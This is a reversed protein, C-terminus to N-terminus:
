KGSVMITRREGFYARGGSTMEFSVAQAGQGVAEILTFQPVQADKLYPTDAAIPAAFELGFEKRGALYVRGAQATATPALWAAEGLNGVNARCLVKAGAPAAYTQGEVATQWAGDGIKIELSNFEADLYLPPNHGNYEGGGVAALSCTESNTGTGATRVEVVKGAKVLDLYQQSYLPWSDPYKTELDFNITDTAAPHKVQAFRPLAQRMVDCAPRETGDPEVVGFDSNEGLRFGGPFWWPSAGRAGSEVFMDYYDRLEAAQLQLQEPKISVLEPSWDTRFGNVTYGFEMWVIPKERSTFRYYLTVLGGRRLDDSPTKVGFGKTQLNYGEPNLFDMHKPAAVGHIHAFEAGYPIGCAGGRFSILHSPNWQRLPEAIDRYGACIIDSHARRFAAVYRDWEGHKQCQPGEPMPVKGEATLKPTFKWDAFANQLSGYREVIWRNWPDLIYDLRGQWNSEIPEWALEWCMVAPHNKIGARTIYDRLKEFSGGYYPRGEQLFFFVKMGHRDCRDLFDLQDRFANPDGPNPPVLAQIGSLANVGLSQLYTLDREIVEPDYANRQSQGLNPYGGIRNPWYNIGKFNWPKGALTFNSGEVRVFEDPTAPKTRTEDVHHAIHDLTTGQETLTTEVQYGGPKGFTATWTWTKEAMEGPALAVDATFARNTDGKVTVNLAVTHKQRGLNVASAGITAAEGPKYSFLETGGELLFVGRTMARVCDLLVPQIKADLAQEPDGFAFNAWLANPHVGDGLLLSVMAGRDKGSGDVADLVPVWRWPRRRNVGRGRERWVPAYGPQTWPLKTAATVGQETAAQLTAAENVPYLKYSPCLAELEPVRFNPQALDHGDAVSLKRIWYTHAGQGVRQTHSGALGVTIAAVQLPRLHDGEGGRGKSTSDQWYQFDGPQLLYTQWDTTMDIVAIWRSGDKETCEISLQSTTADGKAELALLQHQEDFPSQAFGARWTDWGRLESQVQWATPGSAPDPTISAPLEAVQTSRRWQEPKIEIPTQPLKGAYSQLWQPQPLWGEPSKALLKSLAPAGLCIVKGGCQSAAVLQDRAAVPLTRADALVLVDLQDWPLPKDLEEWPIITVGYGAATLVSALRPAIKGAQDPVVAITGQPGSQLKIANAVPALSSDVRFHEFAGNMGGNTLAGRGSTVALGTGFTFSRQWQAGSQPDAVTGTIKEPTLELALHYLHGYEWTKLAGSDARDLRTRQSRGGNQAQHESDYMEVLEFYRTKDPAEVLLLRWHNMPDGFLSLGALPYGGGVSSQLTVDVDIKVQNSQRGTAILFSEGGAGHFAARGGGLSWCDAGWTEYRRAQQFDDEWTAACVVTGIMVFVAACLYRTLM